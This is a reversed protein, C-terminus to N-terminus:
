SPYRFPTPNNDSRQPREHFFQQAPINLFPSSPTPSEDVDLVSEIPSLSQFSSRKVPVDRPSALIMRRDDIPRGAAEERSAAKPLRQPSAIYQAMVQLRHRQEEEEQASSLARHYKDVSKILEHADRDSRTSRRQNIRMQIRMQEVLGDGSTTSRLAPPISGIRGRKQSVTQLSSQISSASPLSSAKRFSLDVGDDYTPGRLLSEMDAKSIERPGPYHVVAENRLQGSVEFSKLRWQRKSLDLIAIEGDGASAGSPTEQVGGVVIMKGDMVVASHGSRAAPVQGGCDWNEWLGTALSFAWVDNFQKSVERSETRSSFGGFVIM